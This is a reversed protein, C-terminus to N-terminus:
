AGLERFTTTSAPFPMAPGSTTRSMFFTGAQVNMGMYM